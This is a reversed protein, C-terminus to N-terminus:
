VWDFDPEKKPRDKSKKNKTTEKETKKEHYDIVTFDREHKKRQSPIPDVPSYYDSDIEELPTGTLFSQAINLLRDRADDLTLFDFRTDHYEEILSWGENRWKEITGGLIDITSATTDYVFTIRVRASTRSMAGPYFWLIAYVNSTVSAGDEALSHQEYLLKSEFKNSM